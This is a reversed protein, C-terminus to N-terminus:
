HEKERASTTLSAFSPQTALVSPRLILRCESLFQWSFFIKKFRGRTPVVTGYYRVTPIPVKAPQSLLGALKSRLSVICRPCIDAVCCEGAMYMDRVQTSMRRGMGYQVESLQATLAGHKLEQLLCDTRQCAIKCLRVCVRTHYIFRPRATRRSADLSSPGPRFFPSSKGCRKVHRRQDRGGVGERYRRIWRGWGRRCPTSDVRGWEEKEIMSM